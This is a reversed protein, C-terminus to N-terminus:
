RQSPSFFSSPCEGGQFVVEISVCGSEAHAVRPPVGGRCCFQVAPRRVVIGHNLCPSIDAVSVINIHVSGLDAGQFPWEPGNHQPIQPGDKFPWRQLFSEARRHVPEQCRVSRIRDQLARSLSKSHLLLFHVMTSQGMGVAQLSQRLKEIQDSKQGLDKKLDGYMEAELPGAGGDVRSIAEPIWQSKSM